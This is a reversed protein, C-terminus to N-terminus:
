FYSTSTNGLLKDLESVDYSANVATKKSIKGERYLGVLCENLTNMGEKHGSQITGPIMNTKEENILNKVANTGVMIEYALCRGNGDMTPLLQQSIVGRVCGAFQSRITSQLEVPSADIIRDITQAASQTHLTSLVLHGTEAATIAASITEFDRMEGVLIIDPDERLSSHLADAFSPTDRYLERQHIMAQNHAYIYEIPDEITIVHKPATKNIYDVVAAMTTTKGSGTPGTVLVLGNPADALTKIVGPLGLEDFDPIQAMLLRISCALNNRQHYINARIRVENDIMVGVDLDEGAEVREIEKPSLITYIMAISEEATPREDLIHLVGYRRVALNTGVTIHVDSCENEIAYDMLQEFTM